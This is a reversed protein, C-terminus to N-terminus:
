DRTKFSKNRLDTFTEKLYRVDTKNPFLQLFRTSTLKSFVMWQYTSAATYSLSASIGAGALGLWPILSFAMPLTVGLGILSAYLNYRPKGTGSFYHSFITNAALALVGVALSAVVLKIDGFDKTFIYEFLRKPVLLLVLLGLATMFVSLKLLTLSIKAAYDHDNTSSISSFQVLSISQGILRLGETIQVGSTYIGVAGIGTYAKIIYFSLRKNMMHAMSSLQTMSGFHFLQRFTEPWPTLKEGKMMPLVFFLGALAPIGYSAYLAYVFAKADRIHFVYVLLAMVLLQLSFQLIFLGNFRNIQGKGLLVNMNFSHFSNILVLALIHSGYGLPVISQYADPFYSLGWFLLAFFAVVLVSWSYSVLMLTPLKARTAFYVLGSGALLEVVLLMLSVDLLVIGAIGWAEKGLENTAIWLLVLSAVANLIRSGSTGLIKKIM